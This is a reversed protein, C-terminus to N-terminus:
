KISLVKVFKGCEIGWKGNGTLEKKSNNHFSCAFSAGFSRLFVFLTCIFCGHGLPVDFSIFFASIAVKTRYEFFLLSPNLIM